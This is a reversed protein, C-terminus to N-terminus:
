LRSGRVLRPQDGLVGMAHRIFVKKLPTLRNVAALGLDRALRVPALDNSFLRNLGDTAAVMALVDPRRWKEYRRLVEPSGIDLGLRASDVLVEALAAVDRWGLNVGQGAIPHIGHAADGALVMRGTFFRQAMHVTLPWSWRPGDLTLDGLWSGFRGTMEASFDVDSLALMALARDRTETWVISSRHQDQLPLVAFPGAPLFREHAIGRHAKEHRVACVIATQQYDSSFSHIGAAQRVQSGRGDAGVLLPATLRRGDALEVWAMTSDQGLAAVTMPAFRTVEPVEALTKELATRTFRNEVIWGMPDDGVARHDYHLFLRSPGDSVRIDLIPGAQEVHRWIGLTELIKKSGLSVATGRGDFTPELQPKPAARDILGVRLGQRGLAIALTAGVLGGGQILVDFRTATMQRGPGNTNQQSMLTLFRGPLGM